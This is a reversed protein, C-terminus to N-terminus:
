AAPETITVTATATLATGGTSDTVTVTYTGAALGTATQTTQAPAPDNWLYTYPAVGGKPMAFAAGETGGNTTANTHAIRVTLAGVSVYEFGSSHEFSMNYTANGNDPAGEDLGTILFNGTAYIKSEDLSGSVQEGFDLKVPVRAIFASRLVEIDGYVVLGECTGTVDIRGAAKTEFIGSDKNSTGRTAMKPSLTHGTAHAVVVGDMFVFLDTGNIENAM